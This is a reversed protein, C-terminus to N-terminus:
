AAGDHRLPRGSPGHGSPMSGPRRLWTRLGPAPRPLPADTPSATSTVELPACGPVVPVAPPTPRGHGLRRGHGAQRGSWLGAELGFSEIALTFETPRVSDIITWWALSRTPSSRSRPVSFRSRTPDRFRAAWAEAGNGDDGLAYTPLGSWPARGEGARLKAQHVSTSEASTAPKKRGMSLTPAASPKQDPRSAPCPRRLPSPRTM